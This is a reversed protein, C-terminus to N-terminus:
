ISRRTPKVPKKKDVAKKKAAAEAQRRQVDMLKM